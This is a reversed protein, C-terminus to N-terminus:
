RPKKKTNTENFYFITVMFNQQFNPTRWVTKRRKIFSFRQAKASNQQWM